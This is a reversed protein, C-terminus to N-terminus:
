KHQLKVRELFVKWVDIIDLGNVDFIEDGQKLTGLEFLVKKLIIEDRICNETKYVLSWMNPAAVKNNVHEDFRETHERTSYGLKLCQEPQLTEFLYVWGKIRRDYSHETFIDSINGIEMQQRIIILADSHTKLKETRLLTFYKKLDSEALRPVENADYDIELLYELNQRSGLYKKWGTTASSIKTGKQKALAEELDSIKPFRKALLIVEKASRYPCRLETETPKSSNFPIRISESIKELTLKTERYMYFFNGHIKKYEEKKSIKCFDYFYGPYIVGSFDSESVFDILARKALQYDANFGVSVTTDM